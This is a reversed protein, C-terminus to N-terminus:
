RPVMTVIPSPTPFNADLGPWDLDRWADVVEALADTAARDHRRWKDDGLYSVAPAGSAPYREILEAYLSGDDHRWGDVLRDLADTLRAM